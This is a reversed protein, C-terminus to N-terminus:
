RDRLLAVARRLSQAHPAMDSWLDGVEAVRRLMARLTFTQPGAEGNEVEDWTCPASVPAGTRPRV